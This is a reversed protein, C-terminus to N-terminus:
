TNQRKCLNTQQTRRRKKDDKSELDAKNHSILVSLEEVNQWISVISWSRPEAARTWNALLFSKNASTFWWHKEILIKRRSNKFLLQKTAMFPFAWWKLFLIIDTLIRAYNTVMLKLVSSRIITSVTVQFESGKECGLLM